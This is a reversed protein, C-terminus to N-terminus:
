VNNGENIIKIADISMYRKLMPVSAVAVIGGILAINIFPLAFWFGATVSVEALNTFIMNMIIEMPTGFACYGILCSILAAILSSIIVIIGIQFLIYTKMNKNKTGLAKMLGLSANNNEISIKLTNLVCVLCIGVAILILAACLGYILGGIGESFTETFNSGISLDSHTKIFRNLPNKLANIENYNKYDPNNKYITMSRIPFYKVDIYNNYGDIIGKVTFDTDFGGKVLRLKFIDGIKANTEAAVTGTLWIHNKGEDDKTWLEGEILEANEFSFRGFYPQANFYTEGHYIPAADLITNMICNQDINLENALDAFEKLYTLNITVNSYPPTAVSLSAGEANISKLDNENANIHFYWCFNAITMILVSLMTISIITLIFHMLNHSINRWALRFNDVIKM